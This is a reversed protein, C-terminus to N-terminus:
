HKKDEKQDLKDRFMDSMKQIDNRISNVAGFVEKLSENVNAMVRTVHEHTPHEKSVYLKFEALDKENQESNDEIKNVKHWLMTAVGGILLTFLGFIVEIMTM